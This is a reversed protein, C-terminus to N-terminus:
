SFTRAGMRPALCCGCPDLTRIIKDRLGRAKSGLAAAQSRNDSYEVEAVSDEKVRKVGAGIVATAVAQTETTYVSIMAMTEDAITTGYKLDDADIQQMLTYLCSDESQALLYRDKQHLLDWITKQDAPYTFAM